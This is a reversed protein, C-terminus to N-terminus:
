IKKSFPGYALIRDRERERERERERVCVCVCIYIYIYIHIYIVVKYEIPDLNKKEFPDFRPRKTKQSVFVFM